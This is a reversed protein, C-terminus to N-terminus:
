SDPFQAARAQHKARIFDSHSLHLLDSTKRIIYEEYKDLAGDAFAIQWMNVVLHCKDEYACHQDVLSTFQYMSTADASEKRAHETLEICEQQSIGYQAGLITYLAGYEREDFHQDITAVEILLAACALRLGEENLTEEENETEFDFFAKIRDLV